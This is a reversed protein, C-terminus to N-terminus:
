IFPHVEVLAAIVIKTGESTLIFAAHVFSVITTATCTAFICILRIRLAKDQIILFLQLSSLLLTLDAFIDSGLQTFAIQKNPTCPINSNPRTARRQQSECVWFLQGVLVSFLVVFMSALVALVRRRQTGSGIRIITFLIGLRACWITAYFTSMVLYSRTLASPIAEAALLVGLQTSLFLMSLLAFLDDAWLARRRVYLRLLTTAIAISSCIASTLQIQASSYM